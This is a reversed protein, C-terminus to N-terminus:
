NNNDDKEEDALFDGIGKEFKEGASKLKTVIGALFGKQKERKEQAKRAAEERKQKREEERKKDRAEQASEGDNTFLDGTKADKYNEPQIEMPIEQFCNEDGAMLLGILVGQTGSEPCEKTDWEVPVATDHALRVKTPQFKQVLVNEIDKLNIGGGCCVVGALLNKLEYGSVEIQHCVNLLIEEFRAEIVDHVKRVEISRGADLQIAEDTSAPFILGYQRKIREAEQEDLQLSCLDRTINQGGMPIVTLFRLYGGKYVSVTTTDAGFDVLVCGQRRENETLLVEAAVLPAISDNAIPIKALEFSKGTNDMVSTRALINLYNGEIHTCNVGVPDNLSNNGIKYMQSVMVLINYGPYQKVANEEEMQVIIDDSVRTETEFTREVRNLESHLTYGGVGVYAQEITANNLEPELRNVLDTLCQATKDINYVVGRRVFGSVPENAYALVQLTGDPRKRGVAGAIKSSGLEIAAILDNTAM